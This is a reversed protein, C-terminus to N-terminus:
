GEDVLRGDELRVVRHFREYVRPDHTALLVTLGNESALSEIANLVREASDADLNATPEDALLLDPRHVVARAVAVRQKEGGSLQAPFCAKKDSLGLDKLIDAAARRRAAKPTRLLALPLEANEHVTLEPMLADDQFVLGVHRRRFEAAAKESLTTITRKLCHVAGEDPRDLAGVLNLLTTKGSGSPGVLALREGHRVQLSVKSLATVQSDGSAFRRTVGELLVAYDMM